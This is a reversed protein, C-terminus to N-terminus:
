AATALHNGHDGCDGDAASAAMSRPASRTPLTSGAIAEGFAVLWRGLRVRRPPLDAPHDTADTGATAHERLHDREREARIAAGERVLDALHDAVRAQQLQLDIMDTVGIQSKMTGNRDTMHEISM